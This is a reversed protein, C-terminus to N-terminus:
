KINPVYELLFDLADSVTQFNIDVKKLDPVGVGIAYSAYDFMPYDNEANGVAIIENPLIHLITSLLELGRKKDIESPIIDYSDSNQYVKIGTLNPTLADIIGQIARHEDKNAPFPTLGVLNPQYWIQPIAKTIEERLLEISKHAAQSYTLTYFQKPPLHIGIQVVAGNEGVLIPDNLGIQRMLGCLYSVPKGSCIAVMTGKQELLKLKTIDGPAIGKGLKALTDDLDFVILKIM